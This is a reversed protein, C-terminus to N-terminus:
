GGRLRDRGELKNRLNMRVERDNIYSRRDFDKERRNSLRLLDSKTEGWRSRGTQM